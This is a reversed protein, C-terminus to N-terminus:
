LTLKTRSSTEFAGKGLLHDVDVLPFTNTVVLSSASTIENALVENESFVNGLSSPLCVELLPACNCVFVGFAVFASSKTMEGTIALLPLINAVYTM